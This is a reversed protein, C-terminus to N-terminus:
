VIKQDIPAEQVSLNAFWVNLSVVANKDKDRFDLLNKKMPEARTIGVFYKVDGKDCMLPFQLGKATSPVLTKSLAHETVGAYNGSRMKVYFERMASRHEPLCVDLMNQGTVDVQTVESTRSGAVRIILHDDDISEVLFVDPLTKGMRMPSFDKKYPCPQGPTRLDLWHDVLASASTCFRLEDFPQNM